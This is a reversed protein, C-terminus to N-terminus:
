PHPEKTCPICSGQRACHMQAASYPTFGCRESLHPFDFEASSVATKFRIRGEGSYNHGNLDTGPIGFSIEIMRRSETRATGESKSTVTSEPQWTVDCLFPSLSLTLMPVGKPEMCTFVLSLTSAEPNPM